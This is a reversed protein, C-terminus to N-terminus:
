PVAIHGVFDTGTGDLQLQLHNDETVWFENLVQTSWVLRHQNSFQEILESAILHKRPDDLDYAYVVVNTDVFVCPSNTSAIM